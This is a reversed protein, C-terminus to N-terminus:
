ESVNFAIYVRLLAHTCRRPIRKEKKKGELAPLFERSVKDTEDIPAQTMKTIHEWKENHETKTGPNKVTMNQVYVRPKSRKEHM